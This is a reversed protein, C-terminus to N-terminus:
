FPCSFLLDPYFNLMYQLPLHKIRQLRMHQADENCVLVIEPIGPCVLIFEPKKHM